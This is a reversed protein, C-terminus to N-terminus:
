LLGAARKLAAVHEYPLRVQGLTVKTSDRGHDDSGGTVLLGRLQAKAALLQPSIALDRTPSARYPYVTEMAEVGAAVLMDLFSEWDRVHMLCPHAVSVAGGAAHLIEVAEHVDVKEVPVYCPRGRGILREFAEDTERVAGAEVLARALHPRGLNGAAHRRVDVMGVDLGAERCKKVMEEMRARRGEEMWALLRRLPEAGPDVFYGLLEGAVGGFDAKLEVGTIVEIGQVTTVRGHLEPTVADHDTIAIASLGSARARSVM